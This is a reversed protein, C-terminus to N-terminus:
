VRRMVVVSIVVSALMIGAILWMAGSMGALFSQQFVAVIKAQISQDFSKLLNGLKDPDSILMTLNHHQEATLTLKHKILQKGSQIKEISHFLATALPLFIATAINFSSYAMGTAVGHHKEDVAEYASLTAFTVACGWGAGAFLLAILIFALSSHLNFFTMMTSAIFLASIGLVIALKLSIRKLLAPFFFPLGVNMVPIALLVIGAKMTSYRLIDNFYLPAFFLISGIGIGCSACCLVSMIFMPKKFFSLNLVPDTVRKETIILLTALVVAAVLYMVTGSSLWGHEAGHTMGLAIATISTSLFAIGLYDVKVKHLVQKTKVYRLLMILGIAIVPINILFVWRWSLYTILGAGLTPGLAIGLGNITSFISVARTQHEKEIFQSVLASGAPFLISAAVGQLARGIILTVLNPALGCVLSAVGFLLMGTMFVKRQGFMDGLKGMVAMLSANTISYVTIIWQLQVIAASFSEQIPPLAVNVITFDLFGTFTLISIGILGLYQQRTM